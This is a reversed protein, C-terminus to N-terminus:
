TFHEELQSVPRIPKTGREYLLGTSVSFGYQLTQIQVFHDVNYVCSSSVADVLYTRSDVHVLSLKVAKTRNSDSIM